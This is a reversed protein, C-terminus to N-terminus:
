LTQLHSTYITVFEFSIYEFFTFKQSDSDVFFMVMFVKDMFYRLEATQKLLDLTM